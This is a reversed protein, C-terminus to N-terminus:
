GEPMEQSAYMRQKFKCLLERTACHTLSGANDSCHSQGSRHYLNLEQGPFKWKCPWFILYFLGIYISLSM